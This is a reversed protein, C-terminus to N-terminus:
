ERILGFSVGVSVGWYGATDNDVGSIVIEMGGAARPDTLILAVGLGNKKRESISDVDSYNTSVLGAALHVKPTGVPFGILIAKETLSRDGVIFDCDGGGDDEEYGIRQAQIRVLVPMSISAALYGGPCDEESGKVMQYNLGSSIWASLHRDGSSDAAQALGSFILLAM